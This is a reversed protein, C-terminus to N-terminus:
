SPESVLKARAAEFLRRTPDDIWPQALGWDINKLLDTNSMGSIRRDCRLMAAAISGCYLVTAIEVPLPSRRDHRSAKAFDKV